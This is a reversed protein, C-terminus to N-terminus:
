SYAIGRAMMVALIPILAALHVEIMVIRRMAAQEQPALRWAKDAELARRWRIFALTPKVSILGVALFLGVKAYVPWHGLHFDAGKAGFGLRLMGTLLVVVASIAYGIDIRGILRILREDLPVRLIMAQAVLFSFLTFIAGFHLYALIADLIM